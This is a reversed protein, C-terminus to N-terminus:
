ATPQLDVTVQSPNGLTLVFLDPPERFLLKGAARVRVQLQVARTPDLNGARLAFSAENGSPKEWTQEALVKGTSDLLRVVLQAGAPLTTGAPLKALGTLEAAGLAPPKPQPTPTSGAPGLFPKLPGSRDLLDGFETYPVKALVTGQAAPGASYPEFLFSIATPTLVFSEAQEASLQTMSGDLVYAARKERLIPMVRRSVEARADVGRRFLSQLKLLGPKDGIMAFNFTAVTRTPNTSGSQESRDFWLSILGPRAVSVTPKTEHAYPKTPKRDLAETSSRVFEALGRTAFRALVDNAFKEVSSTGQFQPYSAVGTWWGAKDNKAQVIKITLSSATTSSATQAWGVVALSGVVLLTSARPGM